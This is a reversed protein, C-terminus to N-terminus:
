RAFHRFLPFRYTGRPEAPSKGMAKLVREERRLGAFVQEHEAARRLWAPEADGGYITHDNRGYYRADAINFSSTFM